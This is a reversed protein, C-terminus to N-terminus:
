AFTLETEVICALLFVTFVVGFYNDPQAGQRGVTRTLFLFVPFTLAPFLRASFGTDLM